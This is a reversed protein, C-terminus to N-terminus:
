TRRVHKMVKRLVEKNRWFYGFLFIVTLIGVEAWLSFENIPIGFFSISFIFSPVVAISLGTSVAIKEILSLEKRKEPFIIGCLLYGPVFIILPLGFISKLIIELM